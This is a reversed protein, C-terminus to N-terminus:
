AEELKDKKYKTELRDLEDDPLFIEMVQGCKPCKVSVRSMQSYNTLISDKHDCKFCELEFLIM